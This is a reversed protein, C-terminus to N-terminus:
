CLAGALLVKAVPHPHHSGEESQARLEEIEEEKMRATLFINITLFEEGREAMAVELDVACADTSRVRESSVVECLVGNGREIVVVPAYREPASPVM